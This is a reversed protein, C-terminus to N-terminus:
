LHRKLHKMLNNEATGALFQCSQIQHWRSSMCTFYQTLITITTIICYESSMCSFYQTLIKITTRYCQSAINQHCVPAINQKYFMWTNREFSGFKCFKGKKRSKEWYFLFAVFGFSWFVFISFYVSKSKQWVIQM